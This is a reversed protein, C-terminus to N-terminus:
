VKLTQDKDIQEMMLIIFVLYAGLIPRGSFPSFLVNWIMGISAPFTYAFYAPFVYIYKYLYDFILFLVYLWFVAGLIGNQVWAGTLHSHTPIYALEEEVFFEKDSTIIAAEFAYGEKDVAYSGHGFWPADRIALYASVFEGRGSLLGLKSSNQQEYKRKSEEGLFGIEATYSYINKALVGGIFIVLIFFPINKRMKLRMRYPLVHYKRYRIFFFLIFVNILGMLFPSRSEQFLEYFSMVLKLLVVIYPHSIFYDFSYATVFRGLGGAVLRNFLTESEYLAGDGVRSQLAPSTFIFLSVVFSIASGWLFFKMRSLDGYFVWYLFILAFFLPIVGGIGKLSDIVSTNNIQDSFFTSCIWLFCLALLALMRRSKFMARFPLPNKILLFLIGLFFIFESIAFTGVIRIQTFSFLGIVFAIYKKNILIM